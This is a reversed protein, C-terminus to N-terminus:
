ESRVACAYLVPSWIRPPSLGLLRLRVGEIARSVGAVTRYIRRAATVPAPWADRWVIQDFGHLRLLTSLSATTFSLEHTLDCYRAAGGVPSEANPVSVILKGGARTRERVADLVGALEPKAFHEIIDFMTVLDYAADEQTLYTLADAARCKLGLENGIRVQAADVDIGACDVFRQHQLFYLFQGCGCGIDLIKASRSEPLWARTYWEYYRLRARHAEEAQARTHYGHYLAQSRYFRERYPNM